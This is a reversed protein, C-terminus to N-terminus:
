KCLSVVIDLLRSTSIDWRRWTMGQVSKRIRDLGNTTVRQYNGEPKKVPAKRKNPKFHANPTQM